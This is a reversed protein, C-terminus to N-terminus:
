FSTRLQHSAAIARLAIVPLGPNDSLRALPGICAGVLPEITLAFDEPFLRVLLGSAVHMYCGPEHIESPELEIVPDSRM